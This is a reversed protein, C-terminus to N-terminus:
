RWFMFEDAGFAAALPDGGVVTFVQYAVDFFLRAVPPVSEVNSFLRPFRGIESAKDQEGREVILDRTDQSAIVHEPRYASAGLM